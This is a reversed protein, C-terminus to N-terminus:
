QVMYIYIHNWFTNGFKFVNEEMVLELLKLILLKPIFKDLKFEYTFIYNEVSQLGEVLDVNPYMGRADFMTILSTNFPTYNKKISNVLSTSNKCFTPM